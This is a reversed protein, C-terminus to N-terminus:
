TLTLQEPYGGTTRGAWKGCVRNSGTQHGSVEGWARAKAQPELRPVIISKIKEGSVNGNLGLLASLNRQIRFFQHKWQLWAGAHLYRSWKQMETAVHVASANQAYIFSDGRIGLDGQCFIAIQSTLDLEYVTRIYVPKNGNDKTCFVVVATIIQTKRTASHRPVHVFAPHLHKVLVSPASHTVAPPVVEASLCDAIHESPPVCAASFTERAKIWGARCHKLACQHFSSTRFPVNEAQCPWLKIECSLHCHSLVSTRNMDNQVRIGKGKDERKEEDQLVYALCTVICQQDKSLANWRETCQGPLGVIALSSEQKM